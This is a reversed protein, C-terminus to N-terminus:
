QAYKPVIGRAAAADRLMQWAEVHKIDEHACVEDCKGCLICKFLGESVASLVRDGQDYPDMYRYANALMRAPGVYEASDTQYVPCAASCVGCRACYDMEWIKQWETPAGNTEAIRYDEETYDDVHVRNYAATLQNDLAHKDVILDCYVPYGPLPEFVHDGDELKFTCPLCPVGDLLCACRGCIRGRCSIDYNVHAVTEDFIKLARLATMNEIFPVEGSVYYPAADVAPDYKCVSIKM